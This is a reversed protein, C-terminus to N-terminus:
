PNFGLFEWNPHAGHKEYFSVGRELAAQNMAGLREIIQDVRDRLASIARKQLSENEFHSISSAMDDLVYSKFTLLLWVHDADAVTRFHKCWVCALFDGCRNEQFSSKFHRHEKQFRKAEEADKDASCLGVPTAQMSCDDETLITIDSSIERGSFYQQMVETADHLTAITKAESVRHYHKIFTPYSHKLADTYTQIDKAVERYITNAGTKRIKASNYKIQCGARSLLFAIKSTVLSFDIGKIENNEEYIFLYRSLASRSYKSRLQNTLKDRVFLLDHVASVTISTDFTFTDTQYGKRPKQLLMTVPKNKTPVDVEVIDSVEVRAISSTNWCTKLQIRAFYIALLEHGSLMGHKITKEVYFALERIDDDSYTDEVTLREAHIAHRNSAIRYSDIFQQRTVDAVWKIVEFYSMGTRRGLRKAKVDSQIKSLLDLQYRGDKASLINIGYSQLMAADEESSFYTIIMTKLKSFRTHLTELGYSKHDIFEVESKHLEILEDCLLPSINFIPSLDIAKFKNRETCFFSIQHTSLDRTPITKKIHMELLNKVARFDPGKLHDKAYLLWFLNKDALSDLGWDSLAQKFASNERALFLTFRIGRSIRAKISRISHGQKGSAFDSRAISQIQLKSRPSIKVLETIELELQGINVFERKFLNSAHYELISSISSRIAHIRVKSYNKSLFQDCNIADALDKLCSIVLGDDSLGKILVSRVDIIIAAKTAPQQCGQSLIAEIADRFEAGLRWNKAYIELLSVTKTGCCVVSPRHLQKAGLYCCMLVHLARRFPVSSEGFHVLLGVEMRLWYDKSKLSEFGNELLDHIQRSETEPWNELARVLDQRAHKLTVSSYFTTTPFTTASDVIREIQHELVPSLKKLATSKTPM